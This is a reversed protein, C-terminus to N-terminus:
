LLFMWGSEYSPLLHAALTSLVTALAAAPPGPPQPLPQCDWRQMCIFWSFCISLLISWSFQTGAHSFFAELGWTIFVQPPQLPPPFDWGWLLTQQLSGHPGLVYVFWGGPFWCWFPGIQKHTVASTVSLWCLTSCTPNNERRGRGWMYCLSAAIHIAGGQCISLAGGRVVYCTCWSLSIHHLHFFLDFSWFFICSLSSSIALRDSACNLVSTILISM